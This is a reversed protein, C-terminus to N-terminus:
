PTVDEAVATRNGNNDSTASIRNKTSGNIGKFVPLGNEVGSLLGVTSAAILRTAEELSRGDINGGAMVAAIGATSLSYGSKDNNTGVTVPNIVSDVTGGTVVGSYGTKDNNTGVTVRGTTATIALDGFNAPASAALLANDTGRMDTNTTVTGITVGSQDAALSYGTKGINWDGKGNLASAAIKAATIANSAIASATLANAAMTGVTVQGSSNFGNASEDYLADYIAEELVWFKATVILAGAVKISVDLGGVQETDTADFTFGYKGNVIHTGGGFNKNVSTTSTGKILKVDTNAITLGTELTKFDTDDIFPGLAYTQSATSQKLYGHFM